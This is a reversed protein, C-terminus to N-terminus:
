ESEGFKAYVLQEAPGAGAETMDGPSPELLPIEGCCTRSSGKPLRVGGEPAIRRAEDSPSENPTSQEAAGRTMSPDGFGEGAGLMRADALRHAM